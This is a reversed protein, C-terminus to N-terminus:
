LWVLQDRLGLFTQCGQHIISLSKRDWPGEISMLLLFRVSFHPASTLIRRQHAWQGTKFCTTL